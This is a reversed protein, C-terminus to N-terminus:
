PEELERFAQFVRGAAEEDIREIATGAHVLVYDGVQAEPVFVLSAEKIVAGFAVRGMRLPDQQITLVKGPIALCM